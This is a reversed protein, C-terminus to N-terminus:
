FFARFVVESKEPTVSLGGNIRIGSMSAREPAPQDEYALVLSDILWASVIGLGAGILAGDDVSLIGGGGSSPSKGILGGLVPLWIRLGISGLARGPNDHAFHILPAGVLYGAVGLGSVAVLPVSILDVMLTQGGYWQGKKKPVDPRPSIAWTNRHPLTAPPHQAAGATSSPLPGSAVPPMTPGGRPSHPTVAASCAALLTAVLVAMRLVGLGPVRGNSWGAM